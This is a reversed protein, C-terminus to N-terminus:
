PATGSSLHPPPNGYNFIFITSKPSFSLRHLSIQAKHGWLCCSKYFIDVPKEKGRKLLWGAKGMGLFFFHVFVFFFFLVFVEFM